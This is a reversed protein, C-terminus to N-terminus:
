KYFSSDLQKKKCYRGVTSPSHDNLLASAIKAYVRKSRLPVIYWQNTARDFDTFQMGTDQLHDLLQHVISQQLLSNGSAAKYQPQLMKVLEYCHRNATCNNTNRGTRCSFHIDVVRSPEGRSCLRNCGDVPTSRDEKIYDNTADLVLDRQKDASPFLFRKSDHLNMKNAPEGLLYTDIDLEDPLSSFSFEDESLGELFSKFEKPEDDANEEYVHHGITKTEGRLPSQAEQAPKWRPSESGPEPEYDIGACAGSRSLFEKMQKAECAEAWVQFGNISQEDDDSIVTHNEHAAM